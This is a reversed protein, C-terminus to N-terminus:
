ATQWCHPGRGGAALWAHVASAYAAPDADAEAGATLRLRSGDRTRVVCSAPGTVYAALACPPHRALVEATWRGPPGLRPDDPSGDRFIVDALDLQGADRTDEHVSLHAEGAGAPERGPDAYRTM